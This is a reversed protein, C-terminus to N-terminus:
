RAVPATLLAVIDAGSAAPADAEAARTSPERSRILQEVTELTLAAVADQRESVDEVTQAQQWATASASALERVVALGDGHAAGGQQLAEARRAVRGGPAYVAPDMGLLAPVSGSGGVDLTVLAKAVGNVAALDASVAERRRVALSGEEDIDTMAPALLTDLAGFDVPVPLALKACM